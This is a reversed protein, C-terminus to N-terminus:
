LRRCRGVGLFVKLPLGPHATPGLVGVSVYPVVIIYFRIVCHRSRQAACHRVQYVNPLLVMQRHRTDSRVGPSVRTTSKPLVTNSITARHNM